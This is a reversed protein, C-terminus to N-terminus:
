VYLDTIHTHVHVSLFLPTAIVQEGSSVEFIFRHRGQQMPGVLVSDLVQDCTDDSASGVYIIKWELDLGCMICCWLFMCFILLDKKKYLSSYFKKFFIGNNLNESCEFTIEFKFPKSFEAPNDLLEVNLIQAKAMGSSEAVSINNILVGGM